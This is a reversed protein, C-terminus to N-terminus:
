SWFCREKLQGDLEIPFLFCFSGHGVEPGASNGGTLAQYIITHGGLYFVSHLCAFGLLVSIQM